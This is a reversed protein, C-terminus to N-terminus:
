EELNVECEKRSLESLPVIEDGFKLGDHIFMSSM